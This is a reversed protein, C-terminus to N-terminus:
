ATTHVSVAYGGGTYPARAWTAWRDVLRLGAAACWRDYEPLGFPAEELPLHAAGLGFGTVLQGGPVLVATMAAVAASETGAALLPMVNGAAVVLDFAAGVSGDLMALDGQHWALAPATRRAVAIMDADVDVGTVDYGRGALEVAVRGHGCGADLVRAPPRVLSACLDAEGHVHVGSDALDDFRRAYSEADVHGRAQSWRTV